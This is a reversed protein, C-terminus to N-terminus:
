KAKIFEVNGKDANGTMPIYSNQNNKDQRYNNCDQIYTAIWFLNEIKLQQKSQHLPYVFRRIHIGVYM